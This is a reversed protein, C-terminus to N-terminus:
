TPQDQPCLFARGRRVGGDFPQGSRDSIPTTIAAYFIRRSPVRMQLVPSRSNGVRAVDDHWRQRDLAPRPVTLDEWSAFATNMVGNGCMLAFVKAVDYPARSRGRWDCDFPQLSLGRM